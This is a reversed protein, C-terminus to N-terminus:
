LGGGMDVLAVMVDSGGEPDVGTKPGDIYLAGTTVAGASEAMGTTASILLPDGKVVYPYSDLGGELNDEAFATQAAAEDGEDITAGILAMAEDSAELADVIEQATSATSEGHIVIDTGDVEVTEEGEDADDIYAVTISNGALGKEKATFTIDGKKISAFEGEDTLQVPVRNGTRIVATKKTDSLSKGASVGIFAGSSLSLGGETSSRRVCLGAVFTAPDANEATVVRDSSETVGMLVKTADHM